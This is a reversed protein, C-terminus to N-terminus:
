QSHSHQLLHEIHKGGEKSVLQLRLKFNQVTKFLTEPSINESEERIFEKLEEVNRPKRAFVKSKVYGWFFYDLPNLDPSYPSWPFGAHFLERFKNSIVNTGFESHLYELVRKATHATAGDQQWYVERIPLSKAKIVPVVEEELMKLYTEQNV